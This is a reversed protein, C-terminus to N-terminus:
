RRSSSMGKTQLDAGLALLVGAWFLNKIYSQAQGAKWFGLRLGDRVQGEIRTRYLYEALRSPIRHQDRDYQRLSHDAILTRPLWERQLDLINIAGVLDRTPFDTLLHHLGFGATVLYEFESQLTALFRSEAHRAFRSCFNMKQGFENMAM